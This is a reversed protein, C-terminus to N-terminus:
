ERNGGWGGSICLYRVQRNDKTVPINKGDEKLEHLTQSGFMDMQSVEFTIMLEQFKQVDDEPIDLLSQLSKAISQLLFMSLNVSGLIKALVTTL